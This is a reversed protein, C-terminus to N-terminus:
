VFSSVQQHGTLSVTTTARAQLGTDQARQQHVGRTRQKRQQPLSLQGGCDVRSARCEQLFWVIM